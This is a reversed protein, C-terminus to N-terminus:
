LWEAVKEKSKKGLTKHISELFSEQKSYVEFLMQIHTTDTHWSSLSMHSSAHFGGQCIIPGTLFNVRSCLIGGGGGGTKWSELM